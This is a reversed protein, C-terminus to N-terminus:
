GGRPRLLELDLGEPLPDLVLLALLRDLPPPDEVDDPLLEGDLDDLTGGKVLEPRGIVEDVEIESNGEVV